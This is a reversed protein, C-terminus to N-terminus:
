AGSLKLVTGVSGHVYAKPFRRRLYEKAKDGTCHCPCITLAGLEELANGVRTMADLSADELHMGGVVARLKRTSLHSMASALTNGVGSHSCGLLVVAGDQTDVVLAQDDSLPDAVSCRSDLYFPDGLAETPALRQIEGTVFVAPHLRTV